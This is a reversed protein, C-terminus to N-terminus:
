GIDRNGNEEPRGPRNDGQGRRPARTALCRGRSRSGCVPVAMRTMGHRRRVVTRSLSPKWSPSVSDPEGTAGRVVRTPRRFREFAHPLFEPAFGPGKDTVEIAVHDEVTRASIVIDTGAAAFRLANDVLNDLAQRIRDPDVRVTLGTPAEVRCTM